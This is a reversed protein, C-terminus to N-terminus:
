RGTYIGYGGQGPTIVTSSRTMTPQYGPVYGAALANSANGGLSSGWPAMAGYSTGYGGDSPQQQMGATGGLIGFPNQMQNQGNAAQAATVEPAGSAKVNTLYFMGIPTGLAVRVLPKTASAQQQFFQGITQGVQGLGAYTADTASQKGQTVIVTGNSVSSTSPNQGMNQGFSQMFSGAAPLLVRTLYRHDVETAMGGLTTDPDLALVNVAYSKDKLTVLTFHMVLYDGAVQFQGVARGGALPGSLVQALIPGPIDSNAEILLQGYNVTGAAVITKDEKVKDKAQLAEIPAAPPTAATDVARAALPLGASTVGTPAGFAKSLDGGKLATLEDGEVIHMAHGNWSDMLQSMQKQMAQALTNDDVHQPQQVPQQQVQVFQRQLTQIQQNSQQQEQKLEQKLRETEARFEKLPDPKKENGLDATENGQAGMPTPLASTGQQLAAEVRQDGAQKNQELFFPSAKGGPAVNMVPPKALSSKESVPGSSVGLTVAIAVAVTIMIVMLKFLPRQRWANVLNQKMGGASASSAPESPDLGEAGEAEFEDMENNTM